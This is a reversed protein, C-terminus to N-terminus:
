GSACRTTRAGFVFVDGVGPIRKLEDVINVRPTTPSTRRTARAARALGAGVVLLIDISRKQVIVGNRRVEDPLRPLAVQVRNNVNFM